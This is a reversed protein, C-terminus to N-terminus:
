PTPAATRAKLWGMMMAQRWSNDMACAETHSWNVCETLVNPVSERNLWYAFARGTQRPVVPDATGQFLMMQPDDTTISNEPM